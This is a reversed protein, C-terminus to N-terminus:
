ARQVGSPAMWDDDTPERTSIFDASPWLQVGETSADAVGRGIQQATASASVGGLRRSVLVCM